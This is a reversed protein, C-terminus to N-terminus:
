GQWVATQKDGALILIARFQSKNLYVPQKDYTFWLRVDVDNDLGAVPRTLRNQSDENAHYTNGEFEVTHTAIIADREKKFVNTIEDPTLPDPTPEVYVLSGDVLKNANIGLANQWQAETIEVCTTPISSHVDDNYYGILENNINTDAYYKIM